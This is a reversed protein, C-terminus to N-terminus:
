TLFTAITARFSAPDDLWPYHGAGPQITLTANPFLGAVDAMIRPTAAIDYEGALVLVPAALTALSARTAEIDFAGDDGYAEAAEENQHGAMRKHHSHAAADWRGYTFPTIAEWDDDAAHGAAIAEFAASASAFWPEDKRLRVIERRIDSTPELGVAWTSPTVLVLRRVRDPYRAAYLVGLNAGSSHALLDMRDLSLHERLAEVDAVLHDCRYALLDTSPQSGGTGRNDLLILRRDESLAGLDGLYESDQMPGGPLCILPDGDGKEHYCLTAADHAAFIPM